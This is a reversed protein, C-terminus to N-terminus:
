DIKSGNFALKARAKTCKQGYQISLLVDNVEAGKLGKERNM